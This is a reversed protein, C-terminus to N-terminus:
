PRRASRPRANPRPSTCSSASPRVSRSGGHGLTALVGQMAQNVSATQGVVQHAAFGLRELAKQGRGGASAIKDSSAAVKAQADAMKATQAYTKAITKEFAGGARTSKAFADELSKSDGELRVTTTHDGM